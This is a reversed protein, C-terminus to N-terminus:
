ADVTRFVVESKVVEAKCGVENKFWRCLEQAHRLSECPADKYGPCYGPYFRCIYENVGLGASLESAAEPAPKESM